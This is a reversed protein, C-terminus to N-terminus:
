KEGLKLERTFHAKALLLDRELTRDNAIRCALDTRKEGDKMPYKREYSVGEFSFTVTVTGEDEVTTMQIKDNYLMDNIHMRITTEEGSIIANRAAIIPSRNLFTGMEFMALKVQPALSLYTEGQYVVEFVDGQKVQAYCDSMSYQSKILFPPAFNDSGLSSVARAFAEHSEKKFAQAALLKAGELPHDGPHTLWGHLEEPTLSEPLLLEVRRTEKSRPDAVYLIISGETTETAFQLAFPAETANYYTSRFLGQARPQDRFLSEVAQEIPQTNGVTVVFQIEQLFNSVLSNAVALRPGLVTTLTNTGESPALPLEGPKMKELRVAEDLFDTLNTQVDASQALFFANIHFATPEDVRRNLLLQAKEFNKFVQLAKEPNTGYVQLIGQQLKPAAAKLHALAYPNELVRKAAPLQSSNLTKLVTTTAEPLDTHKSSIENVLATKKTHPEFGWAWGFLVYYVIGEWFSMGELEGGGSLHQAGMESEPFKKEKAPERRREESPPQVGQSSM